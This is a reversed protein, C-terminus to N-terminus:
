ALRPARYAALLRRYGDPLSVPQDQPGYAGRFAYWHAVLMLIARKPLDPVDAGAEGYGARFDIEIGNIARAPDPPHAISLRAPVAHGDLRYAAPDVLTAAGDADYVTVSLVTRVPTRRLRVIPLAPWRDLVLRWDQDILARGTAAEVEERAARVLGAILEDEADHEVRLHTKAEALSVPELAPPVTRFLTM